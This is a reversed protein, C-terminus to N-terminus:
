EEAQPKVLKGLTEPTLDQEKRIWELLSSESIKAMAVRSITAGSCFVANNRVDPPDFSKGDIELRASVAIPESNSMRRVVVLPSRKMGTGVVLYVVADKADVGYQVFEYKRGVEYRGTTKSFDIAIGARVLEEARKLEAHLEYEEAFQSASGLVHTRGAAGMEFLIELGDQEEPTLIRRLDSEIEIARTGTAVGRCTLMSGDKGLHSPPNVPDFNLCLDFEYGYEKSHRAIKQKTATHKAMVAKLRGLDAASIPTGVVSPNAHKKCSGGLMLVLSVSGVIARRTRALISHPFRMRPNTPM